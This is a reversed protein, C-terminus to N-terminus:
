FTRKIIVGFERPTGPTDSSIGMNISTPNVVAKGLLWYQDTMNTVWAGFTWPSDPSIQYNLQGGLLGYAPIQCTFAAGNPCSLLPATAKYNLSVTLLSAGGPHMTYNGSVAYTYGPAAVGVIPTQLNFSATIASALISDYHADFYSGNVKISLDKTPAWDLQGEFGEYHATGVNSTTRTTIGNFTLVAGAQINSFKEYYADVDVRVTHNFFEAKVGGEYDIFHEPNYSIIQGPIVTAPAHSNYGGENYASRVTFYANIDPTFKYRVSGMPDFNTWTANGAGIIAQNCIAGLKFQTVFVSSAGSASGPVSSAVKCQAPATGLVNAYIIDQSAAKYDHTWRGGASVQLASTIDFDAQGYVAYSTERNTELDNYGTPDIWDTGDFQLFSTRQDFYFFGLTYNLRNSFGKGNLNLEETFETTPSNDFEQYIDNPADVTPTYKEAKSMRDITISKVTVDPSLAWNLRLNVTDDYINAFPGPHGYPTAGNAVFDGGTVLGTTVASTPGTYSAGGYVKFKQGLPPYQNCYRISHTADFNPNYSGGTTCGTLVSVIGTSNSQDHEYLLDATLDATPIWRVQGRFSRSNVNDDRGDDILHTIYGEASETRFSFRTLLTDTFPINVGGETDLRNYNGYRVQVYSSGNATPRNTTVIVAGGTTNRGFLTGQPGYLVQFTSVDFFGLSNGEPRAIYMEDLYLGTKPDANAQFSGQGVGRIAINTGVGGSLPTVQIDPVAGRLDQFNFLNEQQIQGGNLVAASVPVAQLNEERKRATVVVQSLTGGQDAAQDVTATADAALVPGAVALSSALASTVLLARM